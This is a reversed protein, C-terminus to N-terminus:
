KGEKKAVDKKEKAKKEVDKPLPLVKREQMEGLYGVIANLMIQHQTLMHNKQKESYSPAPTPTGEGATFDPETGKAAVNQSAITVFLLWAIAASFIGIPLVNKLKM